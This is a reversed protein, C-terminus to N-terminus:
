KKTLIYTQKETEILKHFTTEIGNEEGEKYADFIVTYSTPSASKLEEITFKTKGVEILTSLEKDIAVGKSDVVVEGTAGEEKIEAIVVPAANPIEGQTSEKGQVHALIENTTWKDNAKLKNLVKESVKRGTKEMMNISKEIDKISKIGIQADQPLESQSLGKEKILKEYTYEIEM